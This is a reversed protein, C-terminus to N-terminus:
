QRIFEVRRNLAYIDDQSLGASDLLKIPEASGVGATEIVTAIGAQKLYAAVAEARAASLKMNTEDSGRIDTHGVLRIRVTRQEKLADALERVAQEGIPTFTTRAYEFTIPVPVAQPAIGRVSRSYIGGLTGDRQDRATQVFRTSGDAMKVNAALLRAQASRTLLGEIEFKEPKAPTLTENKVIAIARDYAEAAEGFRREGFRVEGLTASAQWLVETTEAATLLREYEAVPRGRAMLIQAASLRLAAIRLQAATQYQGCEASGAIRDVLAQADSERATDIAQNFQEILPNCTASFAPGAPALLFASVAALLRYQRLTTRRTMRLDL